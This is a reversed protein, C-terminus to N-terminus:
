RDRNGLRAIVEAVAVAAVLCYLGFAWTQTLRESPGGARVIWVAAGIGGILGAALLRKRFSPMRAGSRACGRGAAPEVVPKLQRVAVQSAGATTRKLLGIANYETNCLNLRATEVV